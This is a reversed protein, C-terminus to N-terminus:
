SAANNFKIFWHLNLNDPRTEADGGSSLTHAHGNPQTGADSTQQDGNWACINHGAPGAMTNEWDTNPVNPVNHNHGAFVDSTFPKTPLGTAWGQTSGVANGANGGPFSSQRAAADPDVGAGRDVGRAFQGCLDPVNFTTATGGFNNKVVAFLQDYPATVAYPTGDCLLWGAAQMGTRSSSLLGGFATIAGIPAQDSM